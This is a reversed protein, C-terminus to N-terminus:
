KKPSKGRPHHKTHMERLQEKSVHTYIQTTTLDAHGLLEQVARLDGGGDLLATAYTHRFTHASPLKTATPENEGVAVIMEHM